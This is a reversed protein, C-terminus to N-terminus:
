EREVGENECVRLARRTLYAPRSYKEKREKIAKFAGPNRLHLNM